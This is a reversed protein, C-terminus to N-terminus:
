LGEPLAGTKFYEMNDNQGKMLADLWLLAMNTFEGGHEDNFTGGHGVPLNTLVVPVKSIRRFDDTANPYAIDEEGGIIYIIPKSLNQLEDKSLLYMPQDVPFAGSNLAVTTKIREDGRTSLVLAQLGGCSQGM